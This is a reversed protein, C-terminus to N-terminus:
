HRAEQSALSLEVPSEAGDGIKEVKPTSKDRSPRATVAKVVDGFQQACIRMSFRNEVTRRGAIGLRERMRPDGTLRDVNELWEEATAALLGNEGHQIVDCNAGVATCITPIEMAMYLLAKMACKGQAWEDDPMPMIGIDFQSLEAVETEAVWPKWVCSVGDLEPQRDSHVQLEVDYRSIIERLVPTFFELYTQSTSSGTWGIVLRQKRPLNNAASVPSYRSTDVSSPITTVRQNHRLAYDALYSNGVVVHDAMRCIAATKGPFKLWGFLRNVGSTHLRYIADDFDFIVPCRLWKLARELVAPGAISITRHILVADYQGALAVRKTSRLFAGTIGTAKQVWKGPRYLLKMLRQDAFPILEVDIGQEALAPMWQEIRFRQSPTTDPAYPVFAGVRIRSGGGSM